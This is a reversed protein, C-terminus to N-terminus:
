KKKMREILRADLSDERVDAQARDVAEQDSPASAAVDLVPLKARCDRALHGEWTIARPCVTGM